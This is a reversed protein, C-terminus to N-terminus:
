RIPSLTTVGRCMRRVVGFGQDSQGSAVLDVVAVAWDDLRWRPGLEAKRVVGDHQAVEVRGPLQPGLRHVRPGRNEM